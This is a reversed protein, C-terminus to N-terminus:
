ASRAPARAMVTVLDGMGTLECALSYAPALLRFLALPIPPHHRVSLLGNVTGALAAVDGYPKECVEGFGGAHLMLELSRPTHHYLHRPLDLHPFHQMSLRASWSEICPLNMVLLGDPKLM